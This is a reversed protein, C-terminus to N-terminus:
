IGIVGPVAYIVSPNPFIRSKFRLISGGGDFFLVLGHQEKSSGKEM